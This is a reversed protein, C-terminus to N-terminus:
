EGRVEKKAAETSLLEVVPTIGVRPLDLRDADWCTGVTPMPYTRGKDHDALAIELSTMAIKDLGILDYHDLMWSVARDSHYPDGADDIRWADHMVSFALVVRLDAGSKLGLRLGNRAVREWHDPGHLDSNMAHPEADRVVAEAWPLQLLVVHGEILM